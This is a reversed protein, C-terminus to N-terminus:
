VGETPSESIRNWQNHLNTDKYLLWVNGAWLIMNLLGFVVSVNLTGMSTVSLFHCTTGPSKCSEIGTIISAGTSERIDALAKAWVFTSVLWLFATLVSIALDTLPVKNNQRYLHNYGIYVVLATICYLFVLAALTVFLQASSSFNGVLHADTWTGGCGKPDPASFVATNLRFPYAFAATITKNVVGKCSVLLATEGHFGGCTAFAFIALVWELVKVFGLPELLMSFDMRLGVM